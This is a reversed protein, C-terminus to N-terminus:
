DDSLSSSSQHRQPCIYNLTIIYSTGHLWWLLWFVTMCDMLVKIIRIKSRHNCIIIWTKWMQSCKYPVFTKCLASILIAFASYSQCLALLLIYDVITLSKENRNSETTKPQYIHNSTSQYLQLHRWRWHISSSSRSLFIHFIPFINM